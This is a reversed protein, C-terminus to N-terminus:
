ESRTRLVDEVHIELGPMVSPRLTGGPGLVRPPGYRGSELLYVDIRTADPDVFWYESVGHGEYLRLKRNLDRQRTSPSSVEVALDPPGALGRETFRDLNEPRVYFVDPQLVDEESLKVDLPLFFAEGGNEQAYQYMRVGIERVAHQHGVSPSPSVILEGGILEHRRKDEPLELWDAYTLGTTQQSEM